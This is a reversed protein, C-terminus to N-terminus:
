ERQTKFLTNQFQFEGIFIACNPLYKKMKKEKKKNTYITPM